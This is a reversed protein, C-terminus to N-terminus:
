SRLFSGFHGFKGFSKVHALAIGSANWLAGLLLPVGKALYVVNEGVLMESPSM